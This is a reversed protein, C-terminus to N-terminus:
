SVDRQPSVRKLLGRVHSARKLDEIWVEPRATLRRIRYVVEYEVAARWAWRPRGFLIRSDREDDSMRATTEALGAYFRRLYRTTQRDPPIYHRVTADPVWRGTHGRTLLDLIVATEDGGIMAEGVRGLRPNFTDAHLVDARFAMNAGFPLFTATIAEDRADLDRVAFAGGVEPLVTRLWAPPTVDFWATIPGGFIATTPYQAFARAYATLWETGVLVDDDTWVVHSGRAAGIAANRANSHGSRPEYVRRVPLRTGFSSVVDATSDTCANDVLVLEWSVGPPLPALHTMQELTRQLLHARNWTCIAVTILM